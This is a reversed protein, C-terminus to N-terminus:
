DGYTRTGILSESEPACDLIMDGQHPASGHSSIGAQSCNGSIRPLVWVEPLRVLAQDQNEAGRLDSSPSAEVHGACGNRRRLPSEPRAATTKRAETPGM